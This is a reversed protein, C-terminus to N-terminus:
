LGFAYGVSLNVIVPTNAVGIDAARHTETRGTTENAYELRDGNLTSHIRPWVRVSLSLALGRVASAQTAFPYWTAYAGGGLTVTAYDVLDRRADGAANELAFEFRHFKLEARVDMVVNARPFYHQIGVGLGTTIPVHQVLHQDRMAGTTPVDLSWGHSYAVVLRRYRFDLEVNAGGLIFPQLLGFHLALSQRPDFRAPDAEASAASDAAVHAQAFTPSPTAAVVIVLAVLALSAPRPLNMCGLSLKRLGHYGCM